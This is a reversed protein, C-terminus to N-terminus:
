VPAPYGRRRVANFKYLLLGLQLELRHQPDSLNRNTLKEIKRLRYALTHRHIFLAAAAKQANTNHKLYVDLTELLEPRTSALDALPGLWSRYLTELNVPGQEMRIAMRIVGLDRCHVVRRDPAVLHGFEATHRAEQAAEPLAAVNSCPGCVGARFGLGPPLHQILIDRVLREPDETPGVEILAVVSDVRRKSLFTRGARKLARDLHEHLQVLKSPEPLDAMLVLVAHTRSLNFGLGRAREVLTSNRDAYGNLIEDLVEGRLREETAAVAEEKMLLLACVTAAHGLAVRDFESIDGAPKYFLLHGYKGTGGRVQAVLARGAPLVEGTTGSGPPVYIERLDADSDSHRAAAEVLARPVEGEPGALVNWARDLVVANAGTWRGIAATIDPLGGGHLAIHTLERHVSESARLLEYQRNVIRELVARTIMSSNLTPPFQIVPLNLRNAHDILVPPIRHLYFGVVIGLAALRRTALRPIYDRLDPNSELGYATTLLFEGEQLRTADELVEVITVWRILNDLGGEGAVLAGQDSPSLTLAERVTISM